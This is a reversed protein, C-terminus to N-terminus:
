ALAWIQARGGADTRLTKADGPFASVVTASLVVGVLVLVLVLEILTFVTPRGV